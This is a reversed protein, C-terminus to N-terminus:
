PHVEGRKQEASHRGIRETFEGLQADVGLSAGEFEAPDWLEIYEVAGVVFVEKSIGVKERLLTPLLIRGAKDIECETAPSVLARVTERTEKQFMSGSGIIEKVVAAWQAPTFLRLCRDIGPAVFVTSGEIENRFKSPILLRGKEDITNSYHGVLM